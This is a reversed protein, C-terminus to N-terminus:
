LSAGGKMIADGLQFIPLFMSVVIVGILGGVFVVMLPEVLQALGDTAAEVQRDYFDSTKLLMTELNGAEEGTAMMQLVMEPFRGTRRFADTVGAGAALHDRAEEVARTIVANGAAGAVMTLSDMIPLGSRVLIGLTRAFRSMVAKRVIPGFIPVSLVFRDRLLRGAATRLTVTIALAFLGLGTFVIVAHDRLMASAAIMGRTLAPLEQGMDAYVGSFTPVVQLLLFIGAILVFAMVFVPYAMASRVKTRITDARELYTALQGVLIDLTGAREGARIMSVYMTSFAEPHAAMAGALTEGSELRVTVDRLARGLTRNSTDSSLSRLGRVLPIGSELVTAFQNSFLALDRVGVSGRILAAPLRFSGAQRGRARSEVVHLVVLGGRHLAGVIEDPNSGTLFGTVERGDQAKAIYAFNAM